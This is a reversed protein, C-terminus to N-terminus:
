RSQKEKENPLDTHHNFCKIICSKLIRCLPGNIWREWTRYKTIVLAEFFSHGRGNTVFLNQTELECREYLEALLANVKQLPFEYYNTDLLLQGQLLLLKGVDQKAVGFMLLISSKAM